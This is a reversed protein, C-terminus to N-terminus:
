KVTHYVEDQLRAYIKSIYKSESYENELWEENFGIQSLIAKFRREASDFNRFLTRMPIHNEDSIVQFTKGKVIREVLVLKEKESLRELATAVMYNINCIKRKEDNLEIIEGILKENTIGNKLHASQFTSKVRLRVSNDIEDCIKQLSSYAVLM